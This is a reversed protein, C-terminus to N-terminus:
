YFLFLRIHLHGVKDGLSNTSKNKIKRIKTQYPQKLSLKWLENSPIKTRRVNLDFSPGIPFM